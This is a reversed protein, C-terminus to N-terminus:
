IKFNILDNIYEIFLGALFGGLVFMNIWRRCLMQLMKISYETNLIGGPKDPLSWM